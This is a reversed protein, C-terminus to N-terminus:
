LDHELADRNVPVLRVVLHEVLAREVVAANPQIFAIMDGHAVHGHTIKVTVANDPADRVVHEDLVTMELISGPERQMGTRTGLTGNNPSISHPVARLADVKAPARLMSKVFLVHDFIAM